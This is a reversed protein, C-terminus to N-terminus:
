RDADGPVFGIRYVPAGGIRLTAIVADPLRHLLRQSVEMVEDGIEFQESNVDIAVLRGKNVAELNPRIRRNYIEEGKEVIAAASSDKAIPLM